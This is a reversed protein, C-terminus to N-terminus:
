KIVLKEEGLIQGSEDVVILYYLGSAWGTTRIEQQIEQGQFTTQLIRKGIADFIQAQYIGPLPANVQLTFRDRSPNPFLSITPIARNISATVVKSYEYSGDLDVQKLRYYNLGKYPNLDEFTYSQTQSAVAAAEVQGVVLWHDLNHSREILFYDNNVENETSWHVDISAMKSTAYFSTLDVPLAMVSNVAALADVIGHGYTNNPINTGPVGGCNETTTRGLATTEIISEIQNVNGALSPDASIMLAVTGVIHPGAMSTGGWTAYTNNRVCSRVSVGPASIDPKMRGSGDVTVDGRSSFGAINNSSNTAGVTFSGDFMAAPTDVTSCSSGSNGASVVVVVGANRLNNVATEMTAWNGSNCGESPPCSWSNNIVHPAKSPDPNAGNLDTPALFWQFCEIYTTPTGSGEDMNRCAIWVAGPAVGIQNNAGDDGVITGITHTGHDHDDCPVISNTDCPNGSASHIADHWNYNHDANSGDWGRYMNKIAPHDWEVGTDQGGIVVGQGTYGMGWVQDAGINTIGWEIAEPGRLDSVREEVPGDFQISPNPHIGQVESLSAIAKILDVGSKVWLTNVIWYSRYAAHYEEALAKVAGQDRQALKTLQEFVYQGKDEKTRFLAAKSLDAQKEMLVMYEVQSGNIATALVSADVKNQWDTSQATSFLSCAILLLLLPYQKLM